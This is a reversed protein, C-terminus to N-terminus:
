IEYVKKLENFHQSVTSLKIGSEFYSSTISPNSVIKKISECLMAIDGGKFTFDNAHSLEHAGGLDSALVSAGHAYFEIAVQPLNDEWLVPVVGVNTKELISPLTSHDYGDLLEFSSFKCSLKNLKLVAEPDTFRAAISISGSAM